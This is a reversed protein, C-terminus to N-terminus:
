SRPWSPASLDARTSLMQGFKIFTPGLEVLALRIRAEVPQRSLDLGSQSRLHGKAFNWDLRHIPDALGYKGLIAIIDGMRGANQAIQPISALKLLNSERYNTRDHVSSM